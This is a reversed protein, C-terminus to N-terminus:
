AQPEKPAQTIWEGSAQSFLLSWLQFDAQKRAAAEVMWRGLATGLSRGAASDAPTHLGACERNEAIRAAFGHLQGHTPDGPAAGMLASLVEALAHSVTAHGSPYSAHPPTPLITKSKLAGNVEDPRAVNLLHKSLYIPWATTWSVADILELTHPAAAADQPAVVTGIAMAFLLEVKYAQAKIETARQSGHTQLLTATQAVQALLDAGTPPPDLSLKQAGIDISIGDAGVRVATLLEQSALYARLSTSQRAFAAEHRQRVSADLALAQARLRARGPRRGASMTDWAAAILQDPNSLHDQVRNSTSDGPPHVPGLPRVLGGGGLPPHDTGLPKSM